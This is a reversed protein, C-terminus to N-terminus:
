KLFLVSSLGIRFTPSMPKRHFQCLYLIKDYSQIEGAEEVDVLYTLNSNMGENKIKEQCKYCGRSYCRWITTIGCVKVFQKNYWSPFLDMFNSKDLFISTTKECDIIEKGKICHSSPIPIFLMVM